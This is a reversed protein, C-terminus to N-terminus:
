RYRISLSSIVFDVFAALAGTVSFAGFIALAHLPTQETEAFDSVSITFAISANLAVRTSSDRRETESWFFNRFPKSVSPFTEDNTFDECAGASGVHDFNRALCASKRANSRFLM